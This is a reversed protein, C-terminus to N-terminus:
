ATNRVAVTAAFTALEYYRQQMSATLADNLKLWSKAFEPRLSFVQTNDKVSGTTKLEQEYIERVKGTAEEEPIGKLFAM